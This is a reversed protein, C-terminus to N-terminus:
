HDAHVEMLRSFRFVHSQILVRAKYSEGNEVAKVIDQLDQFMEELNETTAPLYRHFYRRINHYILHIVTEYLTNRAMKALALHVQSDIKIFDEWGALGRKMHRQGQSILDKLHKLDKKTARQVALSAVIGEVGERFEALEPLSIKRYRILLDLSDSLMENTITNVVAGGKGGIKISILGKQELVRLAERITGRSTQHIETLEREPPLREGSLLRGELIDDQIQEVINHYAKQPM